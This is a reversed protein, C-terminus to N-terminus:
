PGWSAVREAAFDYALPIDRLVAPLFPRQNSGDADMRYLRWAGERDTLFLIRRGDPSWIPAVNNPARVLASTPATLRAQVNGAADMLFIDMHDHLRRQVAIRQGDPSWAPSGLGIDDVLPRTPGAVETIQLGRDGRYVIENSRPRWQPAQVTKQAPLDQWGGGDADIRVLGYDQVIQEPLDEICFRGSPTDLCDQGGLRARLESEELCGFPSILCTYSRTTYTFVLQSGDSSWTPSRPQSASAVRQEQGTRLDLVFVGHPAGWRTFALSNGDPSLAPDMGDTLRRLGTGNASVVYIDGGSGTQFAVKGPLAPEAPANRRAAQTAVPIPTIPGTVTQLEGVGGLVKVASAPVWATHDANDYSVLLWRSDPSLARAWLVQSGSVTAVAQAANDPSARLTVSPQLGVTMIRVAPTQTAASTSSVVTPTTTQEPPSPTGSTAQKGTPQPAHTRDPGPSVVDAQDGGPQRGVGEETALFVPTPTPPLATGALMQCGAVLLASAMLLPVFFVPGPIRNPNNM